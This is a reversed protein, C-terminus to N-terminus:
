SEQSPEPAPVAPPAPVWLGPEAVPVTRRAVHADRFRESDSYWRALRQRADREDCCEEIGEAQEEIDYSIVAWEERVQAGPDPAAAQVAALVARAREIVDQFPGPTHPWWDDLLEVLKALVALADPQDVAPAAPAAPRTVEYGLTRLATLVLRPRTRDNDDDLGLNDLVERRVELWDTISETM